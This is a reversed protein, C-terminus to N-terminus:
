CCRNIGTWKKQQSKIYFARRDLVPESAHHCRHHECYKEYADDGVLTRFTRWFSKWKGTNLVLDNGGLRSDMKSAHVGAQAPTVDIKFIV